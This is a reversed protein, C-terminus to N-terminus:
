NFTFTNFKLNQVLSVCTKSTMRFSLCWTLQSQCYLCYRSIVDNLIAAKRNSKVGSFSLAGCSYIFLVVTWSMLFINKLMLYLSWLIDFTKLKHLKPILGNLFVRWWKLITHFIQFSQEYFGAFKHIQNQQRLIINTLLMQTNDPMILISFNSSLTNCMGYWGDSVVLASIIYSLLYNVAMKFKHMRFCIEHCTQM